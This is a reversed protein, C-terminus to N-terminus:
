AEELTKRAAELIERTFRERRWKSAHHRIEGSDYADPDFSEVAQRVADPTQESFFEGTIGPIVTELAGGAAYALVPRGCAMTEVPILGFDDCSPFIVAACRQMLTVLESNGVSGKFEVNSTARRRLGSLAPGDGAVVLRYGPMSRFADIVASPKKYAEVLRSCFLFYGEHGPDDAPRFLDCDVPPYVVEARRGYFRFIQEAVYHSNAVYRSARRAARRDISQLARALCQFARLAARRQTLEAAYSETMTWAFRLPSHCYCLQPAHNRTRFHHAFAFSSTILLDAEPLRRSRIVAPYTPGLVRYGRILADPAPLLTHLRDAVGMREAVERLGFVTWFPADPFAEAIIAATREAGGYWRLNDHAILIRADEPFEPEVVDGVPHHDIATTISM